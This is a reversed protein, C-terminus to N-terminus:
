NISGSRSQRRLNCILQFYFYM